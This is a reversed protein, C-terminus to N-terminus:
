AVGRAARVSIAAIMLFVAAHTISLAMAAGTASAIPILVRGLGAAMVSGVMWAASQLRPFGSAALYQSLVSTLGLFFVGPLMWRLAPVAPAFRVGFVIRVFPEALFGVAVCGIGVV